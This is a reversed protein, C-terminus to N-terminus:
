YMLRLGMQIRRAYGKQSTITGFASSYPDTNPNSFMVHNLANLFEFRFQLRTRENIQAYKIASLNWNNMGDGRINAFRRSLTRLNYTLQRRTDREFNTDTNFWREPTRESKPLVVDHPDGYFIVNGWSLPQGAQGTFMGQVQWGNVLQGAFGRARPMWKRKRGFPLEWIFSATIRQPYDQDSIFRSPVPDGENLLETAEMFKSWTYGAQLTYGRGFRKRAGAQLSHYWSYGQNTTTIADPFHPFAKLLERRQIITSQRSTNPLMPYYPNPLNYTLYNYRAEDRVGLTSLYQNPVANLDRNFEINTGRNAVYGAEIVTKDPLERQLNFLWRQMYPAEPRTNFFSIPDGVFTMAGLAAGQPEQVGDPFPDALRTEFTLGGTLSAILNTRESFGTQIVDGRRAGLSGYFLGYGSRVVMKRFSWALGIRPMLNNRDREWLTRPLGNVGAFTLGGRVRFQEPALEPFPNLAYKARAAQEIPLVAEGDLGRVSRNFRETLPGEIEYRFGINLTLRPALRWDDQFYVSWASSQEAYAARREQVGGTPLGFLLSALGQGLPSAPSNDYPGQTWRTSFDLRMTSVNDFNYQNERYVRYEGGFKLSHTGRIKDFAGMASHTETPRYLQGNVTSAYGAITIYPFRRIVPDVMDNYRAPFGLRTLDFARADPRSDYTRIFRNYGYRLNMVLTPSLTIVHDFAAGRSLFQFYEGTAENHFWDNYHSDRKYVNVRAFVRQRSSINHDVRATHTYYTIPEPENPLPLNNRGDLTGAHTPLPYYKLINRAIPHIRTAPVINDPLPDLLYRGSGVSRRTMPDYIAYRSGLKLLDSFDGERQRATPVTLTTGRPRSEHIAEYGYLYFTRNKRIPGNASGGWRNYTFDGREIGARNAFFLNATLSPDMKTYYATAHFRNAGSKLSVNVAGGESQGVSADFTATQVKFESVIDSPPVYSAIVERAGATATNPVGDLTIESRNSRVGGMAYGVIHTPEFPRDLSPNGAFAVGNALEILAYPNGHAIPLEAVRRADVTQGLSATTTELLPSEAVVTVQEAVDGVALAIDIELRDNVGVEVGDRASTKFGAREATIRYPGPILYPAGYVGQENTTLAAVVGTATNTIKVTVGPILAGSMDTVRGVIAGRPEQALGLLTLSLITLLRFM